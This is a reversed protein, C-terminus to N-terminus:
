RRVFKGCPLQLVLLVLIALQNLYLSDAKVQNVRMTRIAPVYMEISSKWLWLRWTEARQQPGIYITYSVLRDCVLNWLLYGVFDAECLIAMANFDVLLEFETHGARSLLHVTIDALTTPSDAPKV